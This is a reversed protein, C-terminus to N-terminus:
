ANAARRANGQVPLRQRRQSLRGAHSIKWEAGFPGGFMWKTDSGSKEPNDSPFENDNYKVPFAGLTGFV